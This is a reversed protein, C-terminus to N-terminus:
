AYCRVGLLEPLEQTRGARSQMVASVADDAFAAFIGFALRGNATTTDIQAGAGTLVKLGVGRTRLDDVTNVLHRLDRGLRDLKWLVLTNGPRIAKLCAILGPRADHRGSASVATLREGPPLPAVDARVWGIGPLRIRGREIRVAAPDFPVFDQLRM